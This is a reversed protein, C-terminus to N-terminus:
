RPSKKPIISHQKIHIVISRTSVIIKGQKDKVQAQLQHAGRDARGISFSLDQSNKVVPKGNKLLWINHGEATNLSPKLRVSVTVDPENWLTQNNTPSIIDFDTYKFEATKKEEVVKKKAQTKPADVITLSPPTFKKADDFPQDSYVVNGEDDLGKYLGADALFTFLLASILLSRSITNKMSMIMVKAKVLQLLFGRV